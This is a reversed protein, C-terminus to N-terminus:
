EGICRSPSSKRNFVSLMVGISVGIVCAKILQDYNTHWLDTIVKALTAGVAAGLAILINQRKRVVDSIFRNLIWAMAGAIVLLTAFHTLYKLM